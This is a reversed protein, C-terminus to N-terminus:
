LFFVLPAGQRDELIARASMEDEGAKAFWEKALKLNKDKKM